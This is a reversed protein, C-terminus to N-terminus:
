KLVELLDIQYPLDSAKWLERTMEMRSRSNYEEVMGALVMRIGKQEAMGEAIKEKQITAQIAHYQDYYWEYNAIRNRADQIIYEQRIDGTRAANWKAFPRSFVALWLVIMAVITFGIFAYTKKMYGGERIYEKGGKAIEGSM